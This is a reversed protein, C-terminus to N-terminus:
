PKKIKLEHALDILQRCSRDVNRVRFQAKLYYPAREELKLRVFDFLEKDTKGALLPRKNGTNKLRSVLINVETDLYITAGLRNMVEMNDFFCPTGGGTSIIVDQMKDADVLFQHEAQRFVDEGRQEFISSVEMGFQTEIEYDQDVFTYQLAKALTKGATTKGSGMFGILFIRM